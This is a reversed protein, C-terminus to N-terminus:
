LSPTFAKKSFRWGKNLPSYNKLWLTVFFTMSNHLDGLRWAM